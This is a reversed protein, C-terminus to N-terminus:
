GIAYEVIAVPDDVTGRFKFSEVIAEARNEGIEFNGRDQCQGFAVQSADVPEGFTFVDGGAHGSLDGAQRGLGQKSDRFKTEPKSCRNQKIYVEPVAAM